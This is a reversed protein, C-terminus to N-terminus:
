PAGRGLGLEVTLAFESLASSEEGIREAYADSVQIRYSVSVHVESGFLHGFRRGMGGRAFPGSGDTGPTGDMWFLSYGAEVFVLHGIEGGKPTVRLHLFLPVANAEDYRDYEVGVGVGWTRDIAVGSVFGVGPLADDDLSLRLLEFRGAGSAAGTRGHGSAPVAAMLSGVLLVALVAPGLRKRDDRM